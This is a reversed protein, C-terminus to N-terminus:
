ISARECVRCLDRGGVVHLGDDCAYFPTDCGSCCVADSESGEDSEMFSFFENAASRVVAVMAAVLAVLLCWQVATM